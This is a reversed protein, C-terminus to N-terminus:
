RACTCPVSGGGFIYGILVIVDDIDISASCDLDGCPWRSLGCNSWPDRWTEAIMAQLLSEGLVATPEGVDCSAIYAVAGGGPHPSIWAFIVGPADWFALWACPRTPNALAGCQGGSGICDVYALTDLASYPLCFPRESGALVTGASINVYNSAGTIDAIEGPNGSSLWWPTGGTLIASGGADLHARLPALFSGQLSGDLIVLPWSGPDWDAPNLIWPRGAVCEHFRIASDDLTCFV